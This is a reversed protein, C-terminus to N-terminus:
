LRSSIQVARWLCLWQRNYDIVDGFSMTYENDQFITGRAKFIVGNEFLLLWYCFDPTAGSGLNTILNKIFKGEFPECVYIKRM